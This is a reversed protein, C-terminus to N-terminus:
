PQARPLCPRTDGRDANRVQAAPHSDGQRRLYTPGARAQAGGIRVGWSPPGPDDIRPGAPPRRAAPKDKMPSGPRKEPTSGRRGARHPREFAAQRQEQAGGGRWGPGQRLWWWWGLGPRGGADMEVRQGARKGRKQGRRHAEALDPLAARRVSAAALAAALAATAAPAIAAAHACASGGTHGGPHGAATAHAGTRADRAARELLLGAAAPAAASAAAPEFLRRQRGPLRSRPTRLQPAAPAAGPRRPAADLPNEAAAGTCAPKCPFFNYGVSTPLMHTRM